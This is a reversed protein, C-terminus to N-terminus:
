QSMCGHKHNDCKGIGHFKRHFAGIFWNEIRNDDLDSWDLTEEDLAFYHAEERGYDNMEWDNPDDEKRRPFAEEEQICPWCLISCGSWYLDRTMIQILMQCM